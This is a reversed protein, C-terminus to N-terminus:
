MGTGQYPAVQEAVKQKDGVVVMTLKQADIYKQAAQEVQQPTVAYIKQVYTNLYDDGLKHLDVFELQGILGARSSNRLVFVGALYNKIGSLETDGPAEKQLRDIEYLIEKISAGTYQATVDAVEVWYADRYRTSLQSSPSYTYGKQERINSTIRSGFSGGLISNMVQLPIYDQNSPDITPLGIYLTSQVAGPRDILAFDHKTVPKPIDIFPDAGHQWSSFADTIEKKMAAGDFKGAVYVHTRAAGFNEKYFKQVDEIRYGQIMQETPFLRGYPHNPYLAKRFQELGLFQPQSKQIALSRLQDKKLRDIESAPLLPHMAVDALLAVMKPGYESLVDGSVHTIDVGTSVDVSGGMSAAEQAVQQASRSTTGEKMLTTTLDSLWVQNEAENLNGARVSLSIEVKPIAGYPVLTVQLGNPLAFREPQPVHFPKPASGPPPSQKKVPASQAPTATDQAQSPLSWALALFMTCTLGIVRNKM